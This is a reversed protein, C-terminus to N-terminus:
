RWEITDWEWTETSCEQSSLPIGGYRVLVDRDADWAAGTVVNTPPGDDALLEWALGDWAWVTEVSALDEQDACNALLLRELSEAWVLKADVCAPSAATAPDTGSPAITAPPASPEETPTPTTSSAPTCAAMVIALAALAARPDPGDRLIVGDTRGPM